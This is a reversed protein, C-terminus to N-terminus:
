ASMCTQKALPGGELLVSSFAENGVPKYGLNEQETKTIWQQRRRRPFCCVRVLVQADKIDSASM